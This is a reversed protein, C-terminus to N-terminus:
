SCADYNHFQKHKMKFYIQKIIYIRRIKYHSFQMSLIKLKAPKGNETM